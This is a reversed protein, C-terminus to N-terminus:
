IIPVGLIRDLVQCRGTENPSTHDKPFLGLPGGSQSMSEIDNPFSIMLHDSQVSCM